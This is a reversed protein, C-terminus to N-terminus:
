EKIEEAKLGNDVKLEDLWACALAESASWRKVPDIELLGKALPLADPCISELSSFARSLNHDTDFSAEFENGTLMFCLLCGASWLDCKSSYKLEIRTEPAAWQKLGIRGSIEAEDLTKFEVATNFDILTLQDADSVRLNDPKLDRHCVGKKGLYQL